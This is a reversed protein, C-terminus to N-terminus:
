VSPLRGGFKEWTQYGNECMQYGGLFNEGVYVLCPIKKHAYVKSIGFISGQTVFKAFQGKRWTLATGQFHIWLLDTMIASDSIEASSLPADPHLFPGVVKDVVEFIM